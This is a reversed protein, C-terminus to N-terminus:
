VTVNEKIMLYKFIRMEVNAYSRKVVWYLMYGRMRGKLLFNAWREDLEQSDQFQVGNTM